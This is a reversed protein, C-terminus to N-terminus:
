PAPGAPRRACAGDAPAARAPLPCRQAAPPRPPASAAAAAAAARHAAGGSVSQRARCLGASTAETEERSAFCVSPRPACAGAAGLAPPSARGAPGRPLTPASDGLGGPRAHSPRALLLM